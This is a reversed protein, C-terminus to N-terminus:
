LKSGGIITGYVVDKGQFIWTAGAKPTITFYVM